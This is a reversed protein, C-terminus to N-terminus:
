YGDYYKKKLKFADWVGNTNRARADHVDVQKTFIKIEEDNRTCVIKDRCHDHCRQVHATKERSLNYREAKSWLLAHKM